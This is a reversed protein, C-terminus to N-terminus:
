APVPHPGTIYPSPSYSSSPTSQNHQPSPSLDIPANHSSLSIDLITYSISLLLLAAWFVFLSASLPLTAAAPTCTYSTQQNVKEGEAAVATAEMTRVRAQLAAYDARAERLSSSDDDDHNMPDDSPSPPSDHSRAEAQLPIQTFNYHFQM